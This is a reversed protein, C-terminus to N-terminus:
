AEIENVSLESSSYNEVPKIEDSLTEAMKLAQDQDEAEIETTLAIHHLIQVRFKKM